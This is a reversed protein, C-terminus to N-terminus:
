QLSKLHELVRVIRNKIIFLSAKKVKKNKVNRFKQRSPKNIIDFRNISTEIENLKLLLFDIVQEFSNTHICLEEFIKKRLTNANDEVKHIYRFKKSHLLKKENTIILEMMDYEITQLLLKVFEKPSEDISFNLKISTNEILYFTCHDFNFDISNTFLHYWEELVNKLLTPDEIEENSEETHSLINKTVEQCIFPIFPQINELLLMM